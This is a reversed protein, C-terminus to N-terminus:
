ERFTILHTYLFCFPILMSIYSVNELWFNKSLALHIKKISNPSILPIISEEIRGQLNASVLRATLTAWAFWLSGYAALRTMLPNFVRSESIGTWQFALPFILFVVAFSVGALVAFVLQQLVRPGQAWRLAFALRKLVGPGEECCRMSLPKNGRPGVYAGLCGGLLDAIHRKLDASCCEEHM